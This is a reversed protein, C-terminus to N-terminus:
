TIGPKQTKKKEKTFLALQLNPTSNHEKFLLKFNKLPLPPSTGGLAESPLFKL